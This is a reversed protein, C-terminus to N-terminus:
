LSLYREYADSYIKVYRDLGMQQLRRVYGDWEREIGGNVIWNAYNQNVFAVIDTELVAIEAVESETFYVEPYVEDAPVNYPAYFKDLEARERLNVNLNLKSAIEMTVASVSNVGPSYDHIM